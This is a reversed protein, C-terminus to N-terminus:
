GGANGQGLKQITGATATMKESKGSGPFNVTEVGFAVMLAM